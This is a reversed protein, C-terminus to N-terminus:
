LKVSRLRSARARVWREWSGPPELSRSSNRPSETSSTMRATCTHASGPHGPQRVRSAVVAALSRCRASAARRTPRPAHSSHRAESSRMASKTSVQTAAQQTTGVYGAIAAFVLFGLLILINQFSVPISIKVIQRLLDGRIRLKSYYKYTKRYGPTFTAALFYLLGLINSLAVALGAGPLGMRPAGLNGFILIYNFLINSFNIVIASYMFVKTHGIGNFFGRYSVVFLFIGIGIFRWEMYGAGEDAVDPDAAFFNIFDHSFIYGPVSILLGLILSLLLSNNLVEGAGPFDREGTRRAVLVHTGTALSSFASTLAWAALSALAMAALAVKTNELRGVMATEAVSVVMQSSLGAVAPTAIKLVSRTLAKEPLLGM